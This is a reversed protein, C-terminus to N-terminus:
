PCARLPARKHETLRIRELVSVVLREDVDAARAVERPDRMGLEYVHYLVRDLVEYEAGLEDVARHGPWLGPSSPKLAVERPVGLYLALARVQTKYLGLLPMIDAAGDGWKTFYGLLYESKDGTGVVLLAHKNAYYYLNVMRIRAKVNGKVVRDEVAYSSGYAALVSRVQETIDVQHYRIGFKEAVRIADEVDAPDSERDPMILATVKGKGLAKVLLALTTSSDVGGSLGLVAGKAGSEEVSSRICGAIREAREEVDYKLYSPLSNLYDTWM